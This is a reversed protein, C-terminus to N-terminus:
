WFSSPGDTQIHLKNMHSATVRSFRQTELILPTSFTAFKRFLMAESFHGQSGFALSLILSWPIMKSSFYHEVMHYFFCNCKGLSTSSILSRLQQTREPGGQISLSLSLPHSLSPFLSLSLSLSQLWVPINLDM